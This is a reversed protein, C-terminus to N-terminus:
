KYVVQAVILDCETLHDVLQLCGWTRRDRKDEGWSCQWTEDCSAKLEKCYWKASRLNKTEFVYGGLEVLQLLRMVPDKHLIEMVKDFESRLIYNTIEEYISYRKHQLSHTASLLAAFKNYVSRRMEFMREMFVAALDNWDVATSNTVLHQTATTHMSKVDELLKNRVDINPIAAPNIVRLYILLSATRGHLEKHYESPEGRGYKLFDVYDDLPSRDRRHGSFASQISDKRNEVGVVWSAYSAHGRLVPASCRACLM